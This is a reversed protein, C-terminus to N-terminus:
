ENELPFYLRTSENKGVAGQEVLETAIRGVVSPHLDVVEGIQSATLGDPHKRIVHLVKKEDSMKAWAEKARKEEDAKRKRAAEAEARERAQREEARRQEEAERQRKAEAEAREQAKRAEAAKRKDDAEDDQRTCSGVGAPAEPLRSWIRCAAELDSRLDQRWSCVDKMLRCVQDHRARASEALRHRIEGAMDERTHRFGAMLTRTEAAIEGTRNRIETLTRALDQGAARGTEARFARADALLGFVHSQVGNVFAELRGALEQATEGRSLRFDEILGAVAESRRRLDDRLTDLQDEAMRHQDMAVRGRERGFETLRSAVHAAIGTTTRSLRAHLTHGMRHHDRRFGQLLRMVNHSRARREAARAHCDNALNTLLAEASRTRERGFATLLRSTQATIEGVAAERERRSAVVDHVLAEMHNRVNGM